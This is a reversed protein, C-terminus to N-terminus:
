PRVRTRAALFIKSSHVVPLGVQATGRGLVDVDYPACHAYDRPVTRELHPESGRHESLPVHGLLVCGANIMKLTMGGFDRFSYNQTLM